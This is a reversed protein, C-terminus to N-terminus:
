RLFSDDNSTEDMSASWVADVITALHDRYFPHTESSADKSPGTLAPVAATFKNSNWLLFDQGDTIGNADFDAGSWLAVSSFKNQNWILFDTGDVIGDLNADGLLYARGTGLNIEGAEELWADRDALDVLGDLTLDFQLGHTGALIEAVLADIDTLDYDGDNDFDGDVARALELAGRDIRGSSVRAFPAGRQDFQPPGTFAPDGSDLAPSTMAMSHTLTPGGNDALPLLQPDAGILNGPGTLTATELTKVLNYDAIFNGAVDGPVGLVLNNAIISHTLIPQSFSSGALGGGQGITQASGRASNNVITLHKLAVSNPNQPSPATYIGGGHNFATNGSVTSNVIDISGTSTVAWIGGGSSSASNGSATINSISAVAEGFAQVSIGGGSGDASNNTVSASELNIAGQNMFLAIGGGFRAQNNDVSADLIDVHGDQIVRAAIGGGIEELTENQSTIVGEFRVTGGTSGFAYMGGGGAFAGNYNVMINSVRAIGSQEANAFVGGGRIGDNNLLVGGDIDSVGGTESHLFVGGGSGGSRNNSVISERLLFQGNDRVVSSLGGGHNDADNGELAINHIDTFAGSEDVVSIAGGRGGADNAFFSGNDVITQSDHASKGFWGGGEDDASNSFFFVRRLEFSGGLTTDSYIGGGAEGASNFTVTPLDVITSGGTTKLYMGGGRHNAVSNTANVGRIELQADGATYAHLAGGNQEAHNADFDTGSVIGTSNGYSQLYVGGGKNSWNGTVLSDQLQFDGGVGTIQHLAGGAIAAHNDEFDVNHLQLSEQSLIAGGSGSVDGGVFRINHFEVLSSSAHGDNIQFARIGNGDNVGPTADAGATNIELREPLSAADLILSDTITIEHSTLEIALDPISADFQILDPGPNANAQEVADRLSGSGADAGSTVLFSTLVLRPELAEAFTRRRYTSPKRKKQRRPWAPCNSLHTGLTKFRAM